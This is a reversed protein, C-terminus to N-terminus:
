VVTLWDEGVVEHRGVCGGVGPRTRRLPRLVCLDLLVSSATVALFKTEFECMGDEFIALHFHRAAIAADTVLM